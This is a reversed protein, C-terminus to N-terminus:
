QNNGTPEFGYEHPPKPPHEGESHILVPLMLRLADCAKLHGGHLVAGQLILINQALAVSWFHQELGQILEEVNIILHFAMPTDILFQYHHIFDETRGHQAARFASSPHFFMAHWIGHQLHVEIVGVVELVENPGYIIPGQKYPTSWLQRPIVLPAGHQCADEFVDVPAAIISGVAWRIGQHHPVTLLPSLHKVFLM